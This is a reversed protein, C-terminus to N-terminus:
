MGNSWNGKNLHPACRRIRFSLHDNIKMINGNIKFTVRSLVIECHNIRECFLQSVNSALDYTTCAEEEEEKKLLHAMKKM